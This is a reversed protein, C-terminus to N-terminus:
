GGRFARFQVSCTEPFSLRLITWRYFRGITTGAAMIAQLLLPRPASARPLRCVIYADGLSQLESAGSNGEHRLDVALSLDRSICDRTPNTTARDLWSRHIPTATSNSLAKSHLFCDNDPRLAAQYRAQRPRVVSSELLEM